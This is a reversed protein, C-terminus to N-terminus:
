GHNDRQFTLMYKEFARIDYSSGKSLNQTALLWQHNQPAFAAKIHKRNTLDFACLPFIHDIHHHPSPRNGLHDIIGKIDIGYKSCCSQIKGQKTYRDLAAKVRTRILISINYAQETKKREKIRCNGCMNFAIIRKTKGCSVCPRRHCSKCVPGDGTRAFVPRNQFCRVCASKPTRYCSPCIPAGGNRQKVPKMKGCKRCKEQWCSRCIPSDGIRRAVARLHGCRSCAEKSCQQCFPNGDRDRRKCRALVGCSYCLYQPYRYRTRDRPM